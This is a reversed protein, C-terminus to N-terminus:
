WFSIAALKPGPFKAIPSLYLLYIIKNMSYLLWAAIIIIFTSIFRNSGTYVEEGMASFDM